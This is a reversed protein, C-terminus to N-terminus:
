WCWGLALEVNTSLGSMGDSTNIVTTGGNSTSTEKTPLSSKYYALGLSLHFSDWVWQWGGRGTFLYGSRQFTYDVLSWSIKSQQYQIAVGAYPGDSFLDKGFKYTGALGYAQDVLSFGILSPPSWRDLALGLSLNKGVRRSVQFSLMGLRVLINSTTNQLSWNRYDRRETAQIAAPQSNDEGSGSTGKSRLAGVWGAEASGALLKGSAKGELVETIEVVGKKKGASNLLYYKDGISVEDQSRLTLDVIKGNVGSVVIGGGTGGLASDGGAQGQTTPANASVLTLGSTTRGAVVQAEWSEPGAVSIRLKGVRKGDPDIAYYIDGVKMEKGPDEVVVYTGFDDGITAAQASLSITFSLLLIFKIIRM